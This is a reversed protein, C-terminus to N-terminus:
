GESPLTLRARLRGDDSRDIDIAAQSPRLAQLLATAEDAVTDPGDFQECIVTAMLGGGEEDLRLDFAQSYRTLVALLGQVGRLMMLSEGASPQRTVTVELSGPTGTEERIRSIEGELADHLSASRREDGGGPLALTLRWARDQELLALAWLSQLHALASQGAPSALTEPNQRALALRGEAQTARDQASQARGHEVRATAEASAARREAEDVRRAADSLQQEAESVRDEGAAVQSAASGEHRIVVILAVLCVGIIAVLTWTM